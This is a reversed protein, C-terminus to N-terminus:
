SIALRAQELLHVMDQGEVVSINNSKSRIPLEPNGYSMIIQYMHRTMGAYAGYLDRIM